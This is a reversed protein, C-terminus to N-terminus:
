PERGKRTARAILGGRSTFIYPSLIEGPSDAEKQDKLLIMESCLLTLAPTRGPEPFTNELRFSFEIDHTEREPLRATEEDLAAHLTCRLTKEGHLIRGGPFATLGTDAEISFAYVSPLCRGNLRVSKELFYFYEEDPVDPDEDPLAPRAPGPGAVDVRLYLPGERDARIEFGRVKLDGYLTREVGRDLFLDFPPLGGPGEAFLAETMFMDRTEPVHVPGTTDGLLVGLLEPLFRPALRTTFCGTTREWRKMLYPCNGRGLLAERKEIIPEARLTEETFPLVHRTGRATM